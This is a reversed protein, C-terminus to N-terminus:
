PKARAAGLARRVADIAHDHLKQFEEPTGRWYGINAENWTEWYWTEVEARGYRDVCHKVWQYVLEGWKKYDAPPFAWGTYVRGYPLGPRWDHRYPDPHTSLAKPMFGIEVYPRVGRARYSDFIKDLTKWDYVPKGAADENYADTSGWKLAPTGDGSTLLNHTRFYVQNPRLAGFDALLKQGDKMTAYNPEDAGFFRWIQRLPGLSKAADVQITVPIPDQTTLLNSAQVPGRGAVSLAFGLLAAVIGWHTVRVPM